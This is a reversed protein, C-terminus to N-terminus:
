RPGPRETMFLTNGVLAPLAQHAKLTAKCEVQTNSRRCSRSRCARWDTEPPSNQCLAHSFSLSLARSSAEKREERAREKYSVM